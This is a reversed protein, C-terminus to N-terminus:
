DFYMTVAVVLGAVGVVLRLPTEPIRRVIPPALAAGGICGLALPVVMSWRIDAVVAFIISASLNATGLIISRLANVRAYADALFAGLTAVILVGAAAGFYGGYISILGILLLVAVSHESVRGAQLSRLWPRLMLVVSAFAVLWPVVQEFTGAPQSLLLLAGLAGGVAGALGFRIIRRRQGALEPQASIVSGGSIGLLAV